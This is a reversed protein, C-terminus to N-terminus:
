ESKFSSLVLNEITMTVDAKVDLKERYEPKKARLMALLLTDSYEVIEGCVNGQYFVPKHTGEVARRRAEDELYDKGQEVAEDWEKRFTEDADRLQYMYSRSFGIAEAASSVTYGRSLWSLFQERTFTTWEHRTIEAM